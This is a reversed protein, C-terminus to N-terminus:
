KHFRTSFPRFFRGVMVKSGIEIFQIVIDIQTDYM